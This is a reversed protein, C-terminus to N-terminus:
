AGEPMSLLIITRLPYMNDENRSGNESRIVYNLDYM